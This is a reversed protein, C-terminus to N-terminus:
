FFFVELRHYKELLHIHNSLLHLWAPWNSLSEGEVEEQAKCTTNEANYRWSFLPALAAYLFMPLDTQHWADHQIFFTYWKCLTEFCVSSSINDLSDYMYLLLFLVNRPIIFIVKLIWRSSLHMSLLPVRLAEHTDIIRFIMNSPPFM